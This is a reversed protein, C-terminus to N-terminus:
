SRTFVLCDAMRRVYAPETLYLWSSRSDIKDFDWALDSDVILHYVDARPCQNRPACLVSILSFLRSQRLHQEPSLQLVRNFETNAM